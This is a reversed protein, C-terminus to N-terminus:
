IAVIDTIYETKIHSYEKNNDDYYLQILKVIFNEYDKILEDKITKILTDLKEKSDFKVEKKKNYTKDPNYRIIIVSRGGIGNVIENLRACECIDNYAKHQNEDIEVIVVYKDLEFYVDPRRKSCGNLMNSTNYEFKTDINKKIYNVVSWEKKNYAKVCRICIYASNPENNCYKCLNKVNTDNKVPDHKNCYKKSNYIISYNNKCNSICCIINTQQIQLHEKCYLKDKCYRYNYCNNEKCLRRFAVMNDKKHYGCFREKLNNIYCYDGYKYCGDVNCKSKNLKVNIMDNKKHVSCYLKEKKNEYNYSACTTCNEDICIKGKVCIMGEKKHKTCYLGKKCDKYNFSPQTNCGFEKCKIDVINIMGEQKHFNCYIAMTDCSFNYRPTNKCNEFKCKRNAVDIMKDLKHKVCYLGCKKGIFNFNPRISCGEYSCTKHKVDVMGSKKHEKCFTRKKDTIYGYIPRKKCNIYACCDKDIRVMDEKKHTFCCIKKTEGQYNYSAIIKCNEVICKVATVNIMNEKKHKSCYLRGLNEYNCSARKTCGEHICIDPMKNNINLM